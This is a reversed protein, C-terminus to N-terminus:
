REGWFIHPIELVWFNNSIKAVGLFIGWKTGQGTNRRSHTEQTKSAIIQNSVCQCNTQANKTVCVFVSFSVGDDKHASIQPSGLKGPHYHKLFYKEM